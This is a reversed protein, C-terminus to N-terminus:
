CVREVKQDNYSPMFLVTARSVPNRQAHDKADESRREDNIEASGRNKTATGLEWAKSPQLM